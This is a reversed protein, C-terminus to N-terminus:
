QCTEELNRISIVRFQPMDSETKTEEKKVTDGGVKTETRSRMEGKPVLMGTVQVKHGVYETIQVTDSPVLAYTTTTTTSSVGSADTTTATTQGVPVVKNLVFSRTEPGSAVCGTYTVTQADDGKVKTKTKIDQGIASSAFTCGLVIAGAALIRSM